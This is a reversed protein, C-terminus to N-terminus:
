EAHPLSPSAPSDHSIQAIRIREPSWCEIAHARHANPLHTLDVPMTKCDAIGAVRQYSWPTMAPVSTLKNWCSEPLRLFLFLPTAWMLERELRRGSGSIKVEIQCILRHGMTSLVVRMLHTVEIGISIRHGSQLTSRSLSSACDGSPAAHHVL